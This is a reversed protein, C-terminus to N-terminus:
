SRRLLSAIGAAIGVVALGLAIYVLNSAGSLRSDLNGISSNLDSIRRDIGSITNSIRSVQDNLASGVQSIRNSLDNIRSSLDRITSQAMSLNAEIDRLRKETSVVYKLEGMYGTAWLVMNRVFRPGDLMVGYYEATIMPQYGGLPTESSLIVISNNLRTLIQTAVMPYSGTDGASYAQGLLGRPPATNEVVRGNPTSWAIVEIGSPVDGPKIARWSGTALDRYAIAGPGHMLIREAGFGLFSLKESPKIMAVVRYPAGANSVPDEISIYDLALNSGLAELIKNIISITTEGPPYDSDGALWIAKGRTGLYSKIAQIEAETFETTPQPIILLDTLLSTLTVTRGDPTAMKDLSGILYGSILNRSIPDLKALDRESSLLVYIEADYLTKAFVDLGKASEGHALDVLVVYTIASRAPISTYITAISLVVVIALAISGISRGVSVM